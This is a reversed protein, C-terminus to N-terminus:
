KQQDQKYFNILSGALLVQKEAETVDPLELKMDRVSGDAGIVKAIIETSGAEVEKRIGPLYIYEGM